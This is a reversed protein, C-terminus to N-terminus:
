SDPTDQILSSVLRFHSKGVVLEDGEKLQALVVNQGNLKVPARTPCHLHYGGSAEKRVQVHVPKVGFGRARVDVGRTKGITTEGTLPLVLEEGVLYLLADSCVTGYSTRMELTPESWDHSSPELLHVEFKGLGIRDKLSINKSQVETGNVLTGNASDLDEIVFRGQTWSLSAHKRSVSLNDLVIDCRRDRGITMAPPVFSRQLFVRGALKVMVSRPPPPKAEKALKQLSKGSAPDHEITLRRFVEVKTNPAGPELAFAFFSDAVSGADLADTQNGYFVKTPRGNQLFLMTRAGDRELALAADKGNKALVDLVHPLDVLDTMAQLVPRNRFHVALLLVRVPDARVLRCTANEMQSARIPFDVLPVWFFGDPETLGALYPKAQHFLCTLRAGEGELDLWGDMCQGGKLLQDVEAWIEDSFSRGEFVSQGSPFRILEM